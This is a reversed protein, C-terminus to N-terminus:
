GSLREYPDSICMTRSCEIKIATTCLRLENSIFIGTRSTKRRRTRDDIETPQHLMYRMLNHPIDHRPPGCMQFMISLSSYHWEVVFTTM